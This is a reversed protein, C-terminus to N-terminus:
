FQGGNFTLTGTTTELENRTVFKETSADYQILAGDNLTSSNVDGLLSLKLSSNDTVTGSPINVSVKQPSGGTNASIKASVGGSRNIVAKVM